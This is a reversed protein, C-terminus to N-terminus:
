LTDPRLRQSIREAEEIDGTRYALDRKQRLLEQERMNKAKDGRQLDEYIEKFRKSQEEKKQGEIERRRDAEDDFMMREKTPHNQARRRAKEREYKELDYYKRHPLTATNYEEIFERFLDKERNRSMGEVDVRREEIAWLTFESRKDYMDTERIVGYKGYKSEKAERRTSRSRSRSRHKTRRKRQRRHEDNKERGNKHDKKKRSDRRRSDEADDDLRIGAKQLLDARRSHIKAAISDLESKRAAFFGELLDLSQEVNWSSAELAERLLRERVKPLLVRMKSMAIEQKAAQLKARHQEVMSKQQAHGQSVAGHKGGDDGSTEMDYIIKQFSNLTRISESGQLINNTRHLAFPKSNDYSLHYSM